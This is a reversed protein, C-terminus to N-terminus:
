KITKIIKKKQSLKEENQKMRLKVIKKLLNSPLPADFKFQITGKSTKFNKLEEHFTEIIGGGGPFFSCHNKFAAFYVLMGHYKFAPMGYSILEEANPATAKVIQRIRQLAEIAEPSQAALYSDIDKYLSKM